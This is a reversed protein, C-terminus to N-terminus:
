PYTVRYLLQEGNIWRDYQEFFLDVFRNAYKDSVAASHPTIFVDDRKWLPSDEPLPETEFVDLGAGRLRDERLTALLADTNLVGGRSVNILVADDACAELERKGILHTTEETLPVTLVVLRADDLANHLQDSSYIEHAAGEYRETSRKVGRVNMNFTRAISALREGLRGIGVICCIDGAYDTVGTVDHTWKHAYQNERHELLGRSFSFALGFTHEAITTYQIEPSNTFTIGREEFVSLPFADYGVGITTVWDGSTLAQLYEDKWAGNRCIFAIGQDIEYLTSFAEDPTQPERIPLDSRRTLFDTKSLGIRNDPHLVITM